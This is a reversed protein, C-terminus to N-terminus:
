WPTTLRTASQLFGFSPPFNNARASSKTSIPAGQIRHWGIKNVISQYQYSFSSECLSKHIFWYKDCQKSIVVIKVEPRGVMNLCWDLSSISRSQLHFQALKSCNDHLCQRIIQRQDIKHLSPLLLHKPNRSPGRQSWLELVLCFSCLTSTCGLKKLLTELYKGSEPNPLHALISTWSENKGLDLIKLVLKEVFRQWDLAFYWVIFYYNHSIELENGPVNIIQYHLFCRIPISLFM